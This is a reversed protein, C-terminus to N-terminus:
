VKENLDKTEDKMQILAWNENVDISTIKTKYKINKYAEYTKELMKVVEDLNFGDTSKYDKNYFTKIKEIDHNSLSKNYAKITAKIQDKPSQKFLQFANAQSFAFLNLIFIALIIKKM